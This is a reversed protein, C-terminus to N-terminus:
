FKRWWWSDLICIYPKWDRMSVWFNELILDCFDNNYGFIVHKIYGALEKFRPHNIALNKFLEMEDDSISELIERRDKLFNMADTDWWIPNLWFNKEKPRQSSYMDEIFCIFKQVTAWKHYISKSTWISWNGDIKDWFPFGLIKQFDWPQIQKVKECVLYSYDKWYLYINPLIPSSLSKFLKLEVENQTPRYAYKIVLNDWYEFVSRSFWTWIEELFNQLYLLWEYKKWANILDDLRNLSFKNNECKENTDTADIENKKKNEDETDRCIECLTSITLIIILILIFLDEENFTEKNKSNKHIEKVKNNIEANKMVDYFHISKDDEVQNLLNEQKKINLINLIKDNVHYQKNAISNLTLQSSVILAINKLNMYM